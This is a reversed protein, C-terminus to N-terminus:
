RVVAAAADRVSQSLASLGGLYRIESIFDAQAALEAEVGPDLSAVPTLLLVSGSHGQMVGGCLAD